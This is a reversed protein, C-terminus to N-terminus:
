CSKGFLALPDEVLDQFLNGAFRLLDFNAAVSGGQGERRFGLEPIM